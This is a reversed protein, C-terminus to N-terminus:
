YCNRQWWCRGYSNCVRVSNCAPAYYPYPAGVVVGAGGWGWGGGGYYGGHYYGRHYYGGHYGHYGHYGGHYGGHHYGGYHGGGHFGGGHASCLTSMSLSFIFVSARMVRGLDRNLM